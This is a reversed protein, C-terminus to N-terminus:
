EGRGRGGQSVNKEEEKLNDKLSMMMNKRVAEIDPLQVEMSTSKWKVFLSIYNKAWKPSIHKSCDWCLNHSLASSSLYYNTLQLRYIICSSVNSHPNFGRKGWQSTDGPWLKCLLFMILQKAKESYVPNNVNIWKLRIEVEWYRERWNQIILEIVCTNLFLSSLKISISCTASFEFNRFVKPFNWM